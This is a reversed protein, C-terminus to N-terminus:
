MTVQNWVHELIKFCVGPTSLGYNKIGGELKRDDQKLENEM